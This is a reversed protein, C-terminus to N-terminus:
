LHRSWLRGRSRPVLPRWREHRPSNLILELVSIRLESNVFVSNGWWNLSTKSLRFAVFILIASMLTGVDLAASLVYNYKSWWTFHRRRIYFQFFFGVLSFSIINVGTAPPSFACVSFLVVFHVNRLISHPHKRLYFWIPFPLVAGILLMWLQANYIGGKSFLRAPGVLGWIISASYGTWAQPCSLNSKNHVTCIDDVTSFIWHKVGVQVFVSMVAATMQAVFMDRPPIKMYHGLKMDRSFYTAMQMPEVAFAKFNMGAFPLGQWIYGPILQAILNVPPQLNSVAFVTIIPILYIATLAFTIIFGWWPLGTDFVEVAVIGLGLLVLTPVVYWWSPVTRYYLMLKNHIDNPEAEFGRVIKWIRSGHFLATHVLVMTTLAFALMYTITFSSPLYVPSYEAYATKNLTFDSTVVRTVNYSKGFRDSASLSMIPLYGTSWVKTM